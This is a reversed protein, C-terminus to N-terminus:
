LHVIFEIPAICGPSCTRATASGGGLLLRPAWRVRVYDPRNSGIANNKRDNAWRRRCLSARIADAWERVDSFRPLRNLLNLIPTLFADDRGFMVAPRILIADAFAERVALEGEGRKRIDLSRSRPDAGIGHIFGHRQAQAARWVNPPTSMSPIFCKRDGSSTFVSPM